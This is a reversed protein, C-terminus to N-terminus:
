RRRERIELQRKPAPVGEAPYRFTRKNADERLHEVFRELDVLAIRRCRGVRVSPLTGRRVHEYMLTRGVRLIQAAEEVTVLLPDVTPTTKSESMTM